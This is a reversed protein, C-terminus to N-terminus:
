QSQGVELTRGDAPQDPMAFSVRCRLGAPVIHEPNALELRVGFTGSAADFVQDVIKVVAPREGGIPQDPRVTATDGLKIQGYYRVPLFTEVNLPDIRALTIINSEQHVYEGPGLSRKVVVGDVPSRITRQELTAQSRQLELEAIRRNFKAAALDQEAVNFEAQATEIDQASAYSNAQLSRKRALIGRKLELVAQKAEIEATNRARAENLTVAAREVASELRAIVQGQKVQDGRDVEVRDLISTVPSGLKLTLSPDIVCDFTAAHVSSGAFGIIIWAIALKACCGRLQAASRFRRVLKIAFRV